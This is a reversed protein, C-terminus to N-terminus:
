IGERHALRSGALLADIVAEGDADSLLVFLFIRDGIVKADILTVVTPHFAITNSVVDDIASRVVSELRTGDEAAITPIWTVAEVVHAAAPNALLLLLLGAAGVLSAKECVIRGIRRKVM